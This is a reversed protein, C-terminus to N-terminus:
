GEPGETAANYRNMCGEIGEELWCEVADAAREIASAAAESGGGGFPSLVYDRRPAAAQTTATVTPKGHLVRPPPVIGSFRRRRFRTARPSRAHCVSVIGSFRGWGDPAVGKARPAM